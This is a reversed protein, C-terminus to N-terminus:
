IFFVLFLLTLCWYPNGTVGAVIVGAIPIVAFSFAVINALADLIKNLTSM